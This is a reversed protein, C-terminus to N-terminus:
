NITPWPAEVGALAAAQEATAGDHLMTDAKCVLGFAYAIERVMRDAAIPGASDLLADRRNFMDAALAMAGTRSLTRPVGALTVSVCEGPALDAARMGLVAGAISHNAIELMLDIDDMVTNGTDHHNYGMRGDPM